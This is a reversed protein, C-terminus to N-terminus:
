SPTLRLPALCSLMSNTSALGEIVKLRARGLKGGNIEVAGAVLM